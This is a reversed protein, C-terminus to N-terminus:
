GYDQAEIMEAYKSLISASDITGKLVHVDKSKRTSLKTGLEVAEELSHGHALWRYVVNKRNPLYKFKRSGIEVIIIEYNNFHEEMFESVNTFGLVPGTGENLAIAFITSVDSLDRRNNDLRCFSYQVSTNELRFEYQPDFVIERHRRQSYEALRQQPMSSIKQFETENVSLFNNYRSDINREHPLHYCNYKSLRHIKYGLREIRVHLEMDQFGYSVFNENWGGILFFPERRYIMIGGTADSNINGHFPRAVTFDYRDPRLDYAKDFHPLKKLLDEFDLDDSVFKQDVEVFVGNYPSLFEVGSDLREIADELCQPPVFCDADCMMVYPRSSISAALNLNRTKYHCDETRLLFHKIGPGAFQLCQPEGDSQEVIIIELNTFFTKFFRLVLALNRLRDPSDIKVSFTISLKSLDIM